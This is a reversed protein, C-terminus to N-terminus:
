AVVRAAVRHRLESRSMAPHGNMAPELSRSIYRLLCGPSCVDVGSDCSVLSENTSASRIDIDSVVLWGDGSVSQRGCEECVKVTLTSM